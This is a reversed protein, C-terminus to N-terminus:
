HCPPAPLSCHRQLETACSFPARCSRPTPEPASTAHRRGLSISNQEAPHQLLPISRPNVSALPDSKETHRKRRHGPKRLRACHHFRCSPCSRNTPPDRNLKGTSCPHFGRISRCCKPRLCSCEGVRIQASAMSRCD